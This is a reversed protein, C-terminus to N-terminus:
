VLQLNRHKPFKRWSFLGATGCAQKVVEVKTHTLKHLLGVVTDQVCADSNVGCVRIHFPNFCRRRITRIVETSGDDDVKKVSAKRRYNKLLNLFGHHSRGCGEYELLIIPSGYEKAKLIEQTVGVVVDPNMAAEFESQMDVIVLTPQM